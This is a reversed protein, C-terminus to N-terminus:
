VRGFAIEKHSAGVKSRCGIMDKGGESNQKFYIELLDPGPM